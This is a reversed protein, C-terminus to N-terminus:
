EIIAIDAESSFNHIYIRYTTHEVVSVLWGGFPQAVLLLCSIMMDNINTTTIGAANL